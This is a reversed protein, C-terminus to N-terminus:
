QETGMELAKSIINNLTKIQREKAAAGNQTHARQAEPARAIMTQLNNGARQVILNLFRGCSNAM